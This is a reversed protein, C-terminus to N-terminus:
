KAFQKILNELNNIFNKEEKTKASERLTPFIAGYLLDRTYPDKTMTKWFDKWIKKSRKQKSKKYWENFEYLLYVYIAQYYQLAVIEPRYFNPNVTMLLFTYIRDSFKQELRNLFEPFEGKYKLTVTELREIFKKFLLPDIHKTAIDGLWSFHFLNDALDSRVDPPFIKHKQRVLAADKPEIIGLNLVFLLGFFTLSYLYANRKGKEVQLINNDILRYQEIKRRVKIRYLGSEKGIQYESCRPHKVIYRLIAILDADRKEQLFM